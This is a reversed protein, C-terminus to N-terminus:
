DIGRGANTPAGALVNRLHRIPKGPLKADPQNCAVYLLAFSSAIDEEFHKDLFKWRGAAWKTSRANMRHGITSGLEKQLATYETDYSVTADKEAVKVMRPGISAGNSYARISLDMYAKDVQKNHM